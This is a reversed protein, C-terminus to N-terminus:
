STASSIARPPPALWPVCSRTSPSTTSSAAQVPQRARRATRQARSTPVRRLIAGRQPPAARSARPARRRTWSRVWWRPGFLAAARLWFAGDSIAPAGIAILGALDDHSGAYGYGIAGMSAGLYFIKSRRGRKVAEVAAPVDHLFYSDIDLGLRPGPVCGRAIQMRRTQSLGHGRLEIIHIDAGYALLQKVFDGCTFAHRNQSWGPVLL